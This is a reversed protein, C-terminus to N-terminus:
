YGWPIRYTEGNSGFPESMSEENTRFCYHTQQDADQCTSFQLAGGRKELDRVKKNMTAVQRQLDAKQRRLGSADADLRELTARRADIEAQSPLTRQVILWLGFLIAVQLILTLGAVKWWLGRASKEYRQRAKDAATDAAEFKKKLLTAAATATREASQEVTQTVQQSVDTLRNEVRQRTNRLEAIAERAAAEDEYTAELVKGAADLLAQLQVDYPTTM